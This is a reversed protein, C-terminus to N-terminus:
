KNCSLTIQSNGKNDFQLNDCSLQTQPPLKLKIGELPSSSITRWTKEREHRELVLVTRYDTVSKGRQIIQLFIIKQKLQGTTQDREFYASAFLTPLQKPAPGVFPLEGSFQIQVPILPGPIYLLANELTALLSFQHEQPLLPIINHLWTRGQNPDIGYISLIDWFGQNRVLDELRSARLREKALVGAFLVNMPDASFQAKGLSIARVQTIDSTLVLNRFTVQNYLEDALALIVIIDLTTKGIRIAKSLVKEWLAESSFSVTFSISKGQVEITHIRGSGLKSIDYQSLAEAFLGRQESTLAEWDVKRLFLRIPINTPIKVRVTAMNKLSDLESLFQLESDSLEMLDSNEAIYDAFKQMPIGRKVMASRFQEYQVWYLMLDPTELAKEYQYAPIFMSELDIPLIIREGNAQTVLIANKANTDPIIFGNRNLPFMVTKYYQEALEVAKDIQGTKVYNQLAGELTVGNLRPMAIAIEGTSNSKLIQARPYNYKKLAENMREIGAQLLAKRRPNETFFEQPYIKYVTDETFVLRAGNNRLRGKATWFDIQHAPQRNIKTPKLQILRSLPLTEAWDYLLNAIHPSHVLGEGLLEAIILHKLQPNSNLFTEIEPNPPPPNDKQTPSDLGCASLALVILGLGTLKLFDRRSTTNTPQPSGSPPM